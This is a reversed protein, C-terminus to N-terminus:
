RDNRKEKKKNTNKVLAQSYQFNVHFHPVEGLMYSECSIGGQLKWGKKLADNVGDKFKDWNNCSIIGYEM